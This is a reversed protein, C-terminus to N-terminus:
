GIIARLNNNNDLLLKKSGVFDVGKVLMVLANRCAYNSAQLAKLTEDYSKHSIEMLMNVARKKLKINTAKLDIMFNQYVKKDKIMLATSIMNLVMKTASGAKMRTSGNIVEPGTIVRIVYDAIEDLLTQVQMCFGVTLCGLNKAFKLGSVVYPTTGSAAIGLVVDNKTCNVMKLDNIAGQEDDEVGEAPKIFAKNGGAILGIIKNDGVNFTPDMESADLIGIRGSSGAGIYILRGGNKLHFFIADVVRTIMPLVKNIAIAIQKDEDNIIRLITSTNQLDIDRSKVNVMETTSEKYNKNM